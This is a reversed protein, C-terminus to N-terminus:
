WVHETTGHVGGPHVPSRRAPGPTTSRHGDVPDPLPATVAAQQVSPGRGQAATVESERGM